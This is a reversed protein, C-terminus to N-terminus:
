QGDLTHLERDATERPLPAYGLASCEKQGSTLIWRLLEILAARRAPDVSEPPLLIWTFAAIPYAYKGPANNIAAPTAGTIESERAAEALSDLDAKIFEGSRNRVAAFNLEHQIAYTLEVYGISNPTSQVKDAVGENREAGFGVPWQLTTGRGVDASWKASVKSLFDSWVWTTGSGDSRHVVAIEADPLDVGKNLRRIEPDNWRRVRGLYIDALIEPTFRLERDVGKLNYIPVVGGLVTAIRRLHSTAAVGALFETAVDSGAFDLKGAALMEIGLQSGVPSYNVRVEPHLQEFNEFWQQYLPAPFTAGAAKLETHALPSASSQPTASVPGSERADILKRAAHKAMDDVVNSWALRSPTVLWSWLTQNATGVIELSLYGGYVAQRDNGPTRPNIRFYGRVWVQGSGKLVVDADAPSQVLRFRSSRSLQRVLSDRLRIAEGGGTFSEVCLTRAESLAGVRQGACSATSFALLLLCRFTWCRRALAIQLHSKVKFGDEYESM